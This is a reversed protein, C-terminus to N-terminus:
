SLVMYKTPNEKTFSLRKVSVINNYTSFSREVDVSIIPAYQICVHKM